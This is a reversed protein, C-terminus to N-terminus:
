DPSFASLVADDFYVTGSTNPLYMLYVTIQDVTSALGSIQVSYTSWDRTGEILALSRTTAFGEAEGNELSTDDARIALAIGEGEIGAVKM